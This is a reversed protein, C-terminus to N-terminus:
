FKAKEDATFSVSQKVFNKTFLKLDAPQNSYNKILFQKDEEVNKKYGTIKPANEQINLRLLHAEYNAPEKAVATELLTAGQKFLKKKVLLGKAYKAKLTYATGKYALLTNDKSDDAIKDTLTYFQVTGDESETAKIYEKRIATLDATIGIFFLTFLLTALKM